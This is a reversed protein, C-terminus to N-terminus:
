SHFVELTENTNGINPLREGPDLFSQELGRRGIVWIQGLDGLMEKEGTALAEPREEGEEGALEARAAVV